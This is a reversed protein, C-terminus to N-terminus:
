LEQQTGFTSDVSRVASKRGRTLVRYMHQPCCPLSALPHHTPHPSAAASAPPGTDHLHHTHSGPCVSSFFQERFGDSRQHATWVVHSPSKSTVSRSQSVIQRRGSTKTLLKWCMSFWAIFWTTHILSLHFISWVPRRQGNSDGLLARM